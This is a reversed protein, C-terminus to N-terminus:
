VISERNIDLPAVSCEIMMVALILTQVLSFLIAFYGADQKVAYINKDVLEDLTYYQQSKDDYMLDDISRNSKTSTSSTSSIQKLRKNRKNKTNVNNPNTEFYDEYALRSEIDIDNQNRTQKNGMITYDDHVTLFQTSSQTSSQTPSIEASPAKKHFFASLSQNIQQIRNYNPNRNSQDITSASPHTAPLANSHSINSSHANSNSNSNSNINSNSNTRQIHEKSLTRLLSLSREAADM